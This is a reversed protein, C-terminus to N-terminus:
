HAGPAAPVRKGEEGRYDAVADMLYSIFQILMSIAFVALFGAMMYKVYMGFGAQTVEFNMIPSNIISFKSSMGNILITWCLSMGLLISGLANVLGKTKDKFGM